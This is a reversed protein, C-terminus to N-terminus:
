LPSEVRNSYWLLLCELLNDQPAKNIDINGPMMLELVKYASCIRIDDVISGIM